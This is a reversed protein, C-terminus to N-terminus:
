RPGSTVVLEGDYGLPESLDYHGGIFEAPRHEVLIRVKRVGPLSTLTNVIAYVTIQENESGGPFGSILERSFDALAIGDEVRVDLVKTGPPLPRDCGRPVEGHILEELAAEEPPVGRPLERRVPVMVQRGQVISAFYIKATPAAPAAAPKPSPPAPAAELHVTRLRQYEPYIRWLAFVAAALAAALVVSVVVPVCSVRRRRGRSM